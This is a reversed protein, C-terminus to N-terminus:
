KNDVVQRKEKLDEVDYIREKPYSIKSELVLLALPVMVKILVMAEDGHILSFPTVQTSIRKSTRYAWLVLVLFCTWRKPEEYVM